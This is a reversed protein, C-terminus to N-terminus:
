RGEHSAGARADMLIGVLAKGATTVSTWGRLVIKLVKLAVAFFLLRLKLWTWLSAPPRSFM